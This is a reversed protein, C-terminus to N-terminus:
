EFLDLCNNTHKLFSKIRQYWGRPHYHQVYEELSKGLPDPINNTKRRNIENDITEIRKEYSPHKLGSEFGLDILRQFLTKGEELEKRNSAKQNAFADAAAERLQSTAYFQIKADPLQAKYEAIYRSYLEKKNYYEFSNECNNADLNNLKSTWLELKWKLDKYKKKADMYPKQFYCYDVYNNQFAHGAEHLLTWEQGNKKQGTTNDIAPIVIGILNGGSVRLRSLHAGIEHTEPCFVPIKVKTKDKVFKAYAKEQAEQYRNKPNRTKAKLESRYAAIEEQLENTTPQKEAAQLGINLCISLIAIYHKM